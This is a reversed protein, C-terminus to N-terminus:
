EMYRKMKKKQHEDYLDDVKDELINDWLWWGFGYAVGATVMLGAVKMIEKM